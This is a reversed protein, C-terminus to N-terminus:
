WCLNKLIQFTSSINFINSKMVLIGVNKVKPKNHALTYGVFLTVHMLDICYSDIQANPFITLSNWSKKQIKGLIKWNKREFHAFLEGMKLFSYSFKPFICFKGSNTRAINGLAINTIQIISAHTDWITSMCHIFVQTFM